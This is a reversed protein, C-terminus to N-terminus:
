KWYEQTDAIASSNQEFLEEPFPSFFTQQSLYPEAFRVV